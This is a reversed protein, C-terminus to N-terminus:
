TEFPAGTTSLLCPETATAAPGGVSGTARRPALIALWGTVLQDAASAGNTSTAVVSDSALQARCPPSTQADAPVAGTRSAVPPTAVFGASCPPTRSAEPQRARRAPVLLVVHLLRM